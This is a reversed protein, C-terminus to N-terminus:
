ESDHLNEIYKILIRLLKYPLHKFLSLSIM